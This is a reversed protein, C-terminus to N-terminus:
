CKLYVAFILDKFRNFGERDTITILMTHFWRIMFFDSLYFVGDKMEMKIKKFGVKGLMSDLKSPSNSGYHTRCPIKGYFTKKLNEILPFPLTRIIIGSISNMNPVWIILKGNAKMVRNVELFFKIPNRIHELVFNILFVDVCSTKLPLNELDGVM